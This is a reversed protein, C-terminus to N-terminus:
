WAQLGLSQGFVWNRFFGLFEADTIQKFADICMGHVCSLWAHIFYIVTQKKEDKGSFRLRYGESEKFTSCLNPKHVPDPMQYSETGLM